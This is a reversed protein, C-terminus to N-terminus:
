KEIPLGVMALLKLANTTPTVGPHMIYDFRMVEKGDINEFHERFHVVQAIEQIRRNGAMELDHTSTLVVCGFEVLKDLVHEVAIQRERSNTGQLIEDLLVMMQKGDSRHQQQAADVVSRLRKLEAMFFSVGDQLSDQVQISSALEFSAGQWAQACVPAGLRSLIANVGVSRLLTSKGAMNSGTVLLLPQDRAICVSNPVRSADKLLPHAVGTAAFLPLSQSVSKDKTDLTPMCWDPYEDAISAASGLAEITGIADIWGATEDGVGKKWRELAELVRVDWLVFVQLILYPIFFLPSRQLGALAMIRQLRRL